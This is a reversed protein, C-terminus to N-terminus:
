AAQFSSVLDNFRQWFHRRQEILPLAKQSISRSRFYQRIEDFV